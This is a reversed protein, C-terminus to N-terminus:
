WAQSLQQWVTPNVAYAAGTGPQSGPGPGGTATNCGIYVMGREDVAASSFVNACTLFKFLLRGTTANVAHLYKDNSGVYVIGAAVSPSGNLEQAAGAYKWLVKGSAADVAWLTKSEEASFYAVGAHYAPRTEVEGGVNLRWNLKGTAIDLSSVYHNWSGSLYADGVIMGGGAPKGTKHRWLEKGTRKDLSFVFCEGGDEGEGPPPWQTCNGGENSQTMLVNANKGAGLAIGCDGHAGLDKKWKVAGTGSDLAYLHLDFSGIYLTGDSDLTAPGYITGGTSVNWVMRGAKDLKYISRDYAGFYSAGEVDVAPTSRIKSCPCLGHECDFGRCKPHTTPVHFKWVEAGTAADLNYMNGDDSGVWVRGHAVVPSGVVRNKTAGQWEWEKLSASPLPSASYSQQNPTNGWQGWGTAVPAAGNAAIPLLLALLSRHM